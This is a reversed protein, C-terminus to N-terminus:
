KEVAQGKEKWASFGQNMHLVSNFGMPKIKDCARASRGGAACHIIYTKSKDLAEIKKAFEKDQININTAGKIHGASFEDPSRVDIVVINTDAKLKAAAEEVTINKADAAHAISGVALVVAAILISFISKM